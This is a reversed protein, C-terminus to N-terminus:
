DPAALGAARVLLWVSEDTDPLADVPFWRLQPSEPSPVLPSDVSGLLVYQVDLHVGISGDAHCRVEHRDLRVPAGRVRLHSLGSEEVAEREAVAALSDDGPECHGGLQLWRGIKPHMTLLVARASVDVVLASGTVHAPRCTRWTADPNADVYALFDDRLARQSADSGEYSTLVRRM